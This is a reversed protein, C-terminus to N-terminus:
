MGDFMGCGHDDVCREQRRALEDSITIVKRAEQRYLALKARYLSHLEDLEMARQVTVAGHVTSLYLSDDGANLLTRLNHKKIYALQEPTHM